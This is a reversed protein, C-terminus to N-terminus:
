ADAARQTIETGIEDALSEVGTPPAPTRANVADLARKLEALEEDTFAAWRDYGDELLGDPEEGADDPPFEAPEIAGGWFADRASASPEDPPWDMGARVVSDMEARAALRRENAPIGWVVLGMVVVLGVGVIILFGLWRL